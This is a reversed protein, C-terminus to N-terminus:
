CAGIDKYKMNSLRVLAEFFEFRMLTKNVKGGVDGNDQDVTIFVRDVTAVPCGKKDPIGCMNCVASFDNWSLHPFNNGRSCAIIFLNKLVEINKKLM